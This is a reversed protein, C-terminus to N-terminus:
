PRESEARTLLGIEQTFEVSKADMKSMASQSVQLEDSNFSVDKM